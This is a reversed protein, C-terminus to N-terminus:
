PLPTGVEVDCSHGPQGHPPNLRVGSAPASGQPSTSQPATSQPITVQPATTQPQTSPEITIPTTTAAAGTAGGAPLSSMPAGVPIACSHGPQGHPPNVAGASTAAVPAASSAAAGASPAAAAGTAMAAATDASATTAPASIAAAPVAANSAPPAPAVDPREAVGGCAAVGLMALLPLGVSYKRIVETNESSTTRFISMEEGASECMDSGSAFSPRSPGPM